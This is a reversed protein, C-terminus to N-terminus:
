HLDAHEREHEAVRQDHLSDLDFLEETVEPQAVQGASKSLLKREIAIGLCTGLCAGLLVLVQWTIVHQDLLHQM